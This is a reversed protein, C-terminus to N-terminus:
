GETDGGVINLLLRGPQGPGTGAAATADLYSRATLGNVAAAISADDTAFPYAGLINSVLSRLQTSDKSGEILRLITRGLTTTAM